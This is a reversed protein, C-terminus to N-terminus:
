PFEGDVEEVLRRPATRRWAASLAKEVTSEDVAALWVRTCGQRGWSGGFAEFVGPAEAELSGQLDLPLKVMGWDGEPGLTAFIKGGVRFDPHSMHEGETAGPFALALGRFEEATM